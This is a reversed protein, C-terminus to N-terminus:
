YFNEDAYRYQSSWASTLLEDALMQGLFLFGGNQAGLVRLAFRAGYGTMDGATMLGFQQLYSYPNGWNKKLRDLAQDAFEDLSTAEPM